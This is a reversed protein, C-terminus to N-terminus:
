GMMAILLDGVIAAQELVGTPQKMGDVVLLRDIRQDIM